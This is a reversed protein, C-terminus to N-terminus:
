SWIKMFSHAHHLFDIETGNGDRAADRGVLSGCGTGVQCKSGIM